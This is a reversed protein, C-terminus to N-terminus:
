STEDVERRGRIFVAAFAVIWPVAVLVVFWSQVVLAFLLGVVGIVLGRAGNLKVSDQDDLRARRALIEREEQTLQRENVKRVVAWHDGVPCHISMSVGHFRRTLLAGYWWWWFSHSFLHGESCRYVYRRGRM